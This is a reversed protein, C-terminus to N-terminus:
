FKLHLGSYKNRTFLLCNDYLDPVTKLSILIFVLHILRKRKKELKHNNEAKDGFCTKIKVSCHKDIVPGFIECKIHSFTWYSTLMRCYDFNWAVTHSGCLVILEKELWLQETPHCPDCFHVFFQRIFLMYQTQLLFSYQTAMSNWLTISLTRIFLIIEIAFHMLNFLTKTKAWIRKIVSKDVEIFFFQNLTNDDNLQM